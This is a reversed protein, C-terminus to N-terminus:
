WGKEIAKAIDQGLEKMAGSSSGGFFGGAISGNEMRELVVEGTAKDVLRFLCYIRTKGAGFGVLYRQARSGAQYKTIVGSLILTPEGADPTALWRQSKGMSYNTVLAVDKLKKRDEVGELLSGFLSYLHEPPVEQESKILFNAVEIRKYDRLRKTFEAKEFREQDGESLPTWDTDLRVPSSWGPGAAPTVVSVTNGETVTVDQAFDGADARKVVVRYTGPLIRALTLPTTGVHFGELFVTATDPAIVEISGYKVDDQAPLSVPVVTLIGCVGLAARWRTM